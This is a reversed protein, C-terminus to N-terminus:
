FKYAIYSLSQYCSFVSEIFEDQRQVATCPESPTSIPKFMARSAMGRILTHRMIEGRTDRLIQTIDGNNEVRTIVCRNKTQDAFWRGAIGRSNNAMVGNKFYIFETGNCSLPINLEVSVVKLTDNDVYDFIRVEEDFRIKQSVVNTGCVKIDGGLVVKFLRIDRRISMTNYNIFPVYKDLDFINLCSHYGFKEIKISKTKDDGYIDYETGVEFVDGFLSSCTPSTIKYALM